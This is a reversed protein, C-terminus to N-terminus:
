QTVEMKDAIEEIKPISEDSPFPLRKQLRRSKPDILWATPWGGNPLFKAAIEAGYIMPFSYENDKMLAEAIAINADVSISLVARDTRDKWREYLQQVGQLTAGCAECGSRWIGVYTVKGQLDALSWTKGSLDKAEFPAVPFREPEAQPPKLLELNIPIDIGARRALMEYTIQDNRWQRALRSTPELSKSLDLERRFDNLMARARELQGTVIAHQILIERARGKTESTSDEGTRGSKELAEGDRYYKTQDESQQIGREILGPVQDLRIKRAVYAEAIQFQLAPTSTGQDPFREANSIAFDALEIVMDVSVKEVLLLNAADFGAFPQGWFDRLLALSFAMYRADYAQQADSLRHEEVPNAPRPNEKRWREQRDLYAAHSKPAHALIEDPFSRIVEDDKLIGESGLSYMFIWTESGWMPHDRLFSVDSGVVQLFEDLHDRSYTVQELTWATRLRELDEDELGRRKDAEIASRLSEVHHRLKAPDRVTEIYRFVYQDGPCMQRFAEFEREAVTRDGNRPNAAWELMALHTWPSDKAQRLIRDLVGRSTKRQVPSLLRAELLEGLLRDPIARYHEIALDWERRMDSHQQIPTQLAFQLPWDAPYKRALARRPAYREEWSRSLDSMSPLSRYENEVGLAMSCATRDSQAFGLSSLVALLTVTRM